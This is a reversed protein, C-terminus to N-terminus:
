ISACLIIEDITKRGENQTQWIMQQGNQKVFFQFELMTFSLKILKFELKILEGQKM